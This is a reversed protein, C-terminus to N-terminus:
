GTTGPPRIRLIVPFFRGRERRSRISFRCAITISQCFRCAAGLFALGLQNLKRYNAYLDLLSRSLRRWPYSFYDEKNKKIKLPLAWAIVQERNLHIITSPLRPRLHEPVPDYSAVVLVDAFDV